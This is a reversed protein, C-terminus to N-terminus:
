NGLKKRVLEVTRAKQDTPDVVVLRVTSGPLGRVFSVCEEITRDAPSVDDIKEIFNGALLGAQAAPSNPVVQVIQLQHGLSDFELKAGIGALEGKDAAILSAVLQPTLPAQQIVLWGIPEVLRGLGDYQN